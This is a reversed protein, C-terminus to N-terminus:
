RDFFLLTKLITAFLCYPWKMNNHFLQLFVPITIKEFNKEIKPKKASSEGGEFYFKYIIKSLIKLFNEHDFYLIHLTKCLFIYINLRNTNYLLSHIEPHIRKKSFLFFPVILNHSM